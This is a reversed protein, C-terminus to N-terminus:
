GSASLRSSEIPALRPVPEEGVATVRARAAAGRARGIHGRMEAAANQAMQAAREIRNELEREIAGLAAEVESVLLGIDTPEAGLRCCLSYLALLVPLASSYPVLVVRYEYADLHAKRLVAYAADPVAAVAFPATLSPELYKAVERARAAVLREVSAALRQREPGEAEHLAEVEAVGAWKSDVPLRRGDPLRLAFEVLKGGVRFGTDV